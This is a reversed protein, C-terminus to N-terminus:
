DVNVFGLDELMDFCFEEFATSDLSDFSLPEKTSMRRKPTGSKATVRRSKRSEM